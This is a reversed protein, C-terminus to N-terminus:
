SPGVRPQKVRKDAVAWARGRFDASNKWAHIGQQVGQNVMESIEANGRAGTVDIKFIPNGSGHLAGGGKLTPMHPAGVLGGKAYGQMKRLNNVGIRKTAEADFVYEGKHVIGAPDYKGGAGTYGGKDFGLLKGISGFLGGFAGGSSDGSAPKFLADFASNLLMDGLKDALNGLADGLSEAGKIADIANSKFSDYFEASAQETKEQAEQVKRLEDAQRAYASSVADIRVCGTLAVPNEGTRM